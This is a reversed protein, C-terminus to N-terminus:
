PAVKNQRVRYTNITIDAQTSQQNVSATNYPDEFAATSAAQSGAAVGHIM